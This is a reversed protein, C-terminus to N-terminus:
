ASDGRDAKCTETCKLRKDLQNIIQFAECNVYQTKKDITVKKFENCYTFVSETETALKCSELVSEVTSGGGFINIKGWLNQWGMSFGLILMVLLVVGLVILILTTVSMEQGKKNMVM